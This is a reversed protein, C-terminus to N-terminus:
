LGGRYLFLVYLLVAVIGLSLVCALLLLATSHNKEEDAQLVEESYADLDEDSVDSNYVHGYNNSFNQYVVPGAAPRTDDYLLDASLTNPKAPPLEEAEEEFTDDYEEYEEEDYEEECEEERLLEAELRALAEDTDKFM